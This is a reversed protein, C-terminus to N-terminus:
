LGRACPQRRRHRQPPETSEGARGPMPAGPAAPATTPRRAAPPTGATLRSVRDRLEANERGLRACIQSLEDVKTALAAFETGDRADM